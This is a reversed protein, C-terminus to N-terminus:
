IGPWSPKLVMFALAAVPALLAVLGWAEWRKYLGAYEQWASEKGVGRAVDRIRRQLPAVRVAFVLGSVSFLVIPWFVWGTALIPIRAVIAASFGSILIGAVAPGTFLRDSRIIGGFTTAILELDRTKHAHRAWFLGTTINGLFIVVSAVHILKLILYTM